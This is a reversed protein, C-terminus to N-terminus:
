TWSLSRLMQDVSPQLRMTTSLTTNKLLSNFRKKQFKEKRSSTVKTEWWSSKWKKTRTTKSSSCGIKSTISRRNAALISCLCQRLPVKIIPALSLNSHNRALQIGSRYKSLPTKSPSSRPALSSELLLNMSIKSDVKWSGWSSAPSALM